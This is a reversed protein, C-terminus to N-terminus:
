SVVATAGDRVVSEDRRSERGSLMRVPTNAVLGREPEYARPRLTVICAHDATRVDVLIRWRPGSVASYVHGDSPVTIAKDIITQSINYNYVNLELADGTALVARSLMQVGIEGHTRDAPDLILLFRDHPGERNQDQFLVATREVLQSQLLASRLPFSLGGTHQKRWTRRPFIETACFSFGVSEGGDIRIIMLRSAVNQRWLSEGFTLNHSRVLLNQRKAYRRINARSVSSLPFQADVRRYTNNTEDMKVFIALFANADESSHCNLIAVDEAPTVTLQVGSTAAPVLDNEFETAMPQVQFSSDAPIIPISMQLGKNTISFPSSDRNSWAGTVRGSSAFWSPRRALIGGKDVEVDTSTSDAAAQLDAAPLQWAFISQDDSHKMIEEQLRLFAQEGEGYVLAMTVGFLGLLCYAQDEVRTTKRGSAWAMKQAVCYDSLRGNQFVQLDIKTTASIRKRLSDRTGMFKWDKFFFTVMRPALLEQLTWGREFWRSENFEGLHQVDTLYAYCVVADRYWQFMSNIAESLEASSRKDICCTDIWVFDLGDHRAQRCCEYVKSYGKLGTGTGQQIEVFSVEEEGWTHSLIAYPPVDQGFETVKLTHVSLLRM